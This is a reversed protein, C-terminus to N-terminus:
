ARLANAYWKGLVVGALCTVIDKKTLTAKTKGTHAIQNRLSALRVLSALLEAPMLPFGKAKALLPVVVKLVPVYGVGSNFFEKVNGKSTVSELLFEVAQMVDFEISTNAPVVSATYDGNAYEEFANVLSTISADELSGEELWTLMVNLPVSEPADPGFSVPFVTVTDKPTLRRPSNGHFELPFLDGQPSYNMSLIRAGKPVGCEEFILTLPTDKKLTFTGLTKKAGVLAFVDDFFFNEEICAILVNFVDLEKECKACSNIVGVLYRILLDNSLGALPMGCEQCKLGFSFSPISQYM